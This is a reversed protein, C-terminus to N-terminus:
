LTKRLLYYDHGEPFGQIVSEIRYGHKQYFDPAQFSYTKVLIAVCGKTKAHEEAALLLRKGIGQKQVEEGVWLQTIECVGAWTWGAVGAVIQAEANRVVRSFLQGDHRNTTRSNHEYLRDELFEIITSEDTAIELHLPNKITRRMMLLPFPRGDEDYDSRREVIFGCAEYFRRAPENQENVSVTLEGRLGQAYEVLQRGGGRGLYEPAIFLAAIENDAMGMFGVVAGTPKCLVWLEAEESTLYGTAPAILGDIEQDSLFTHTARVSRLWIDVLSGRDEKTAPRITM